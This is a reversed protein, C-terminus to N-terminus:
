RVVYLMAFILVWFLDVTHWYTACTEVTQQSCREPDSLQRQLVGLAVFGILVHIGHIGTLFFYYQTFDNKSFTYGLHVLHVWEVTKLALFVVGLATTALALRKATQHQGARAQRVCCAIAWSSTLLVITDLVGLWPTLHSQTQLFIGDHQGRAYLYVCFYSTFILSEFFVFFWMDPEGPVRRRTPDREEEVAGEAITM